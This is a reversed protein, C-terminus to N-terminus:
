VGKQKQQEIAVMAALLPYVQQPVIANGLAAIRQRRYAGRERTTRPPEWEYQEEGPLAPWQTGDMRNAFGDVSRGMGPQSCERSSPHPQNDTRTPRSGIQSGSGASYAVAGSTRTNWARYCPITALAAAHCEEWGSCNTHAVRSAGSGSAEMAGQQRPQKPWWTRQRVGDPDAMATEQGNSRANSPRNCKPQCQPQHPWEWQRSCCAHAVIFVRNRQHPAGVACAPLVFAQSEYQASALDAQVQDLALSIFGAVNEVLVWTPQCRQVIRFAEPWLFRDDAAGHRNGAYSFPQCPIGGAVLDVPGFENGRVERIDDLRPVDPWHKALIARCFPDREVQGAIAQGLWHTWVYDIAGIGACVSLLRMTSM